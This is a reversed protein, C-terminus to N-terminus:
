SNVRSDYDDRLFTYEVCDAILRFPMGWEDNLDTAGVVKTDPDLDLETDAQIRDHMWERVNSPIQLVPNDDDVGLWLQMTDPLTVESKNTGPFGEYSRCMGLHRDHVVEVHLGLGDAIAVECAVGLCCFRWRDGRSTALRNAGQEWQSSRLAAVWLRMNPANAITEIRM